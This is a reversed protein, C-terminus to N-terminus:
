ITDFNAILYHKLNSCPILGCSVHGTLCLQDTSDGLLIVSRLLHIELCRGLAFGRIGRLGTGKKDKQDEDKQKNKEEQGEAHHRRKPRSRRCSDTERERWSMFM